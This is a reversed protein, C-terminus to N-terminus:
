SAPAAATGATPPHELTVLEAAAQSVVLPEPDELAKSWIAEADANPALRVRAAFAALRTRRCPHLRSLPELLELTNADGCRGAIEIMSVRRSGDLAVPYDMLTQSRLDILYQDRLRVQPSSALLNLTISLDDPPLQVHVDRGARYLMVQDGCFHRRERFTLAIKEGVMGSVSDADFDYLETVYGPGFHNVTLFQYNHDHAVHYSFADQYIRASRMDRASPWINARLLFEASNGLYIVQASPLRRAQHGQLIQRNLVEVVLSRNNALRRLLPACALLQEADNLDALGAAFDMLEDLTAPQQDAIWLTDTM